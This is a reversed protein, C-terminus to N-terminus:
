GPGDQTRDQGPKVVEKAYGAEMKPKDRFSAEKPTGEPSLRLSYNIKGFSTLSPTAPVFAEFNANSSPKPPLGKKQIKMSRM